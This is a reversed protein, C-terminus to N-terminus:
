CERYQGVNGVLLRNKELKGSVEVLEWKSM